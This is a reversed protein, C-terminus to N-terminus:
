AIYCGLKNAIANKIYFTNYFLLTLVVSKTLYCGKHNYQNRLDKIEEKGPLSITMSDYLVTGLTDGTM